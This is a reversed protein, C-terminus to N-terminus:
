DKKLADELSCGMKEMMALILGNQYELHQLIIEIEEEAQVNVALDNEARAEAHRGQINQGVMILPMLLIQLVNSIFLWLVFGMPPDFQLSRPALLNWGLWIVTWIFILLFFGFTGVRETVWVALTDLRSLSENFEQNVDRLQGRQKKFEELSLPKLEAM